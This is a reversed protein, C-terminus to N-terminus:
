DATMGSTFFFKKPFYSFGKLTKPKRNSKKKLLAYPIKGFLAYTTMDPQEYIVVNLNNMYLM